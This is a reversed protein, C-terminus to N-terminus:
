LIPYSSNKEKDFDDVDAREKEEYKDTIWRPM